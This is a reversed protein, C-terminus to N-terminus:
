RTSAGNIVDRYFATTSAVTSRAGSWFALHWSLASLAHAARQSQWEARVSMRLTAGSLARAAGPFRAAFHGISRRPFPGAGFTGLLLDRRMEPYRQVLMVQARGSHFARGPRQEVAVFYWHDVAAEPAYHFTVGAQILRQALEWDEGGYEKFSEDFGGVSLLADRKISVHGGFVDVARLPAGSADLKHHRTIFFDDFWVRLSDPIAADVINHIRGVVADSRAHAAVHASLLGPHPVVDDDLFLVIPTTAARAGANRASALGRNPQEIIYLPWREPLELARLAEASGDTSGDLVVICEAEPGDAQQEALARVLRLLTVRRNFSSIVVSISVTLEEVQNAPAATFGAASVSRVM